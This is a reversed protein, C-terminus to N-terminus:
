ALFLTESAGDFTGEAPFRSDAHELSLLSSDLVFGVHLTGALLHDLSAVDAFLRLDRFKLESFHALRVSMSLLSVSLCCLHLVGDVAMVLDTTLWSDWDVSPFIEAGWFFTLGFTVVVLFATGPGVWKVM